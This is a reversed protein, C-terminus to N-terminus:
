RALAEIEKVLARIEATAAHRPAIEFVTQGTAASEAFVVRSSLAQKLVPVPYDALAATVDRALATNAVRRNVVFAAKLDPKFVRAEDILDTIEHAAWVDYPSPQVPILVVHSALIASRAVEYVRPAGDIVIADYDQGIRALEKHLSARALAIVPFPVANQRSQAWDLASGQPDADVLLVKRGQRALADATHIALTTKGVGGKQNLFAYVVPAM